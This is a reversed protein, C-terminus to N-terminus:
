STYLLCTAIDSVSVEKKQLLPHGPSAYVLMEEYFVPQEVIKDDGYPTVFIGVDIADQKLRRIIDESVM